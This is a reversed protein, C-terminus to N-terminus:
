TRIDRRNFGLIGIIVLAAIILGFLIFDAGSLRSDGYYYFLSAKNVQELQSVSVAMSTILYSLFAYGSAIGVTLGKKGTVAGIAYALLGFCLSVLWCSVTSQLIHSAAVHENILLLAVFIGAIIGISAVLTIVAGALLKHLLLKTRGIPLMLESETLGRQENGAVLGTFVVISLIISLLPMRLAFIQQDLYASIDHFSAVSGVVKQVSEPMNAFATDIGSDKFSPFFVLTLTTMTMLALFWLVVFMRKQYLIKTFVNTFKM